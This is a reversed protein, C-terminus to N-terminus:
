ITCGEHYKRKAKVYANHADKPNNYAGLHKNSGDVLIQATYCDRTKCYYVGLYGTKNRESATRRNQKNLSPSADRLNIIRNDSKDGNIHDIEQKPWRGYTFLYALRHQLYMKQKIKIQMYGTKMTSGAVDGAKVSGHKTTALWYFKGNDPNYRLLKKFEFLEM